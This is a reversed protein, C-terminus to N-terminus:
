SHKVRAFSVEHTIEGRGHLGAKNWVVTFSIHYDVITELTQTALWERFDKSDYTCREGTALNAVMYRGESNHVLMQTVAAMDTCALTSTDIETRTEWVEKRVKTAILIHASATAEVDANATKM